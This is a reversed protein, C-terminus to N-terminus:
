RTVLGVGFGMGLSRDVVEFLADESPPHVV